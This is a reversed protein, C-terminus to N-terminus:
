GHFFNGMYLLWVVFSRAVTEGIISPLIPYRKADENVNAVGELVLFGLVIVQPVYHM